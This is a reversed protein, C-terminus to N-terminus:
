MGRYKSRLGVKLFLHDAPGNVIQGREIALAIQRYRQSEILGDDPAAEGRAFATPASIILGAFSGV